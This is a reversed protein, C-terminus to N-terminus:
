TLNIIWASKATNALPLGAYASTSGGANVDSITSGTVTPVNVYTYCSGSFCRIATGYAAGPGWFRTGVHSYVSTGPDLEWATTGAAGQGADLAAANAELVSGNNQVIGSGDLSNANTLQAWTTSFLNLGSFGGSTPGRWVCNRFLVNCDSYSTQTLFYCQSFSAQSSQMEWFSNTGFLCAVFQVGSFTSLNNSTRVAQFDEFSGASNSIFQVDKFCVRGPGNVPVTFDSMQLISTYTDIVYTDNVAPASQTPISNGPPHNDTYRSWNPGVIPTTGTGGGFVWAIGDVFAGSVLRLRNGRVFAATPDTITGRTNTASNQGTVATITSAVSSTITGQILVLVGVGLTINRLPFGGVITGALLTVTVDQTVTTGSLRRCWEALTALPALATGSNRDDGAVPDVFWVTQFQAPTDTVYKRFLKAGAPAAPTIVNLGDSVAAAPPTKMLIYLDNVVGVSAISLDPTSTFNFAQAAQPTTFVLSAGLGTPGTSGTNAADGTAGTPGTFGTPGTVTSAAGTAGTQGTPGTRGTQGTQGTAGTNTAAGSLGTPGTPGTRGTTGTSGTNTAAGSSGTPGTRGTTGTPGAVGGPSVKLFHLLNTGPAANGTDGTNQVTVHTADTITIIAYYGGTEIFLRQGTAMWSTDAVTVAVNAGVAPQVFDETVLTFANTGTVGTDGTDGTPGTPGATGTPGTTGVQEPPVRATGRGATGTKDRTTM